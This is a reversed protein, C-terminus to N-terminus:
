IIYLCVGILFVHFRTTRIISLKVHLIIIFFQNVSLLFFHKKSLDIDFLKKLGPRQVKVAM